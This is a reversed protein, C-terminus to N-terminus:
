REVKEAIEVLLRKSVVLTLVIVASAEGQREGLSDSPPHRVLLQGAFGFRRVNGYLRCPRPLRPRLSGEAGAEPNLHSCPSLRGTWYGRGKGASRPAPLLATRLGSSPSPPYPRGAAVFAPSAAANWSQTIREGSTAITRAPNRIAVFAFASSASCAANRRAFAAPSAASADLLVLSGASM